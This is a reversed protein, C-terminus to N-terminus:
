IGGTTENKNEFTIKMKANSQVQHNEDNMFSMM